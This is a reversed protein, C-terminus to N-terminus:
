PAIRTELDELYERWWNIAADILGLGDKNEFGKLSMRYYNVGTIVHAGQHTVFKGEHLLYTPEPNAGFQAEKLLKNREFRMFNFYIPHHSKDREIEKHKSDVADRAKDSINSDVRDLVHGVSRLLAVCAVWHVRWEPTDLKDRRLLDAATRCDDLVYWAALTRHGNTM